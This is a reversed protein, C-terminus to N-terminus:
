RSNTIARERVRNSVERLKDIDSTNTDTTIVKITEDFVVKEKDGNDQIAKIATHEAIRKEQLDELRVVDETVRQLANQSAELKFWLITTSYVLLGIVSTILAIQIPKSM